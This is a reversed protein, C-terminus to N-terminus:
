CRTMRHVPDITTPGIYWRVDSYLNFWELIRYAPSRMVSSVKRDLEDLVSEQSDHILAEVDRRLADIRDVAKGFERYAEFKKELTRSRRMELESIYLSDLLDDARTGLQGLMRFNNRGARGLGPPFREDFPQKTNPGGTVTPNLRVAPREAPWVIELDACGARSRAHLLKLPAYRPIPRNSLAM